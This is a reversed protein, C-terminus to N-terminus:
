HKPNDTDYYVKVKKKLTAEGYCGFMMNSNCFYILCIQHINILYTSLYKIKINKVM